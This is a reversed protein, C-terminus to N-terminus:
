IDQKSRNIIYIIIWFPIAVVPSDLIPDASTIILTLFLLQSNFKDFKINFSKILFILFLVLFLLGFRFIITSLTNHLTRLPNKFLSAEYYCIPDLLKEDILLAPIPNGINYGFLINIFERSLLKNGAKILNVRWAITSNCNNLQYSKLYEVKEINSELTLFNSNPSKKNLFNTLDNLETTSLDFYSFQCDSNEYNGSFQFILCDLNHFRIRNIGINNEFSNLKNYELFKALQSTDDTISNSFSLVFGFFLIFILQKYLRQNIFIFFFFILQTYFIIRSQTSLLGLNLGLLFYFTKNENIKFKFNFYYILILFIFIETYKINVINVYEYIWIDVSNFFITELINIRELIFDAIYIFFIFYFFKSITTTKIIKLPNFNTIELILVLLIPYIIVILDQGINEIFLFKIESTNRLILFLIFISLLSLFKFNKFEKIRSLISLLLIFILYDAIYGPVNTIKLYLFHKGFTLTCTILMLFVSDQIKYKSSKM